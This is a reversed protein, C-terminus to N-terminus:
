RTCSLGTWGDSQCSVGDDFTIAFPTTQGNALMIIDPTGTQPRISRLSVRSKWTRPTGKAWGEPTTKATSIASQTVFLGRSQRSQIALARATDFQTRFWALDTTGQQSTTAIGAGVALVALIAVVVLLEVLTIGTQHTTNKTAPELEGGM